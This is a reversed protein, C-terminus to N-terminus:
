RPPHPALFTALAGAALVAVLLILAVQYGRMADFLLGVALPGAASGGLVWLNQVATIAGYARRGVQRAMVTGRLPTVAGYGAGYLLAYAVTPGDGSTLLLVLIALAMGLMALALLAQPPVRQGALNLVLRGPVSALGVLGAVSAAALPPLGRVILYAVQHVQIANAAFMTAMGGLTLLWIAPRRFAAALTLGTTPGPRSEGAGDPTLGLDEPRRRVAFLALPITLAAPLALLAVAARWGHAQILWGSLPIMIPSSLGGITTLLAMAAPRRRDFWNAVVVFSLPYQTLAMALGAGSAWVAAFAAPSRTRSLLLLTAVNVAGGVCLLPRAGTRDVVRGVALGAVAAVVLAISYASALQARNGGLERTVPDVLVGFLYQTTGYSVITVLGLAVVIPWGRYIGREM